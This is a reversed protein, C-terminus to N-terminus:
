DRWRNSTGVSERERVMPLVEKGFFTMQELDPHGMFLFRTVGVKQYEALANVIEEPSGVLAISPPGLYPV